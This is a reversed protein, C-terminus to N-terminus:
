APPTNCQGTLLRADVSPDPDDEEYEPSLGSVKGFDKFTALIDDAQQYFHRSILAHDDAFAMVVADPLLRLLREMLVDIVLVFLLPSLPCGQRIGASLPFVDGEAGALTPCGVHDFYLAEILRLASDPFGVFRLVELLFRQSISPFAAAFDFLFIAPDSGDSDKGALAAQM